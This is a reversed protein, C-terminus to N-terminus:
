FSQVSNFDHRLITWFFKFNIFNQNNKVLFYIITSSNNGVNENKTKDNNGTIHWVTCMDNLYFCQYFVTKKMRNQLFCRVSYSITAFCVALLFALIRAKINAWHLEFLITELSIRLNTQNLRVVYYIFEELSKLFCLIKFINWVFNEQQTYCVNKAVVSAQNVLSDKEIEKRRKYRLVLRQLNVTIYLKTETKTNVIKKLWIFKKRHM